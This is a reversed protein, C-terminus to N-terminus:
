TAWHDSMIDGKCADTPARPAPGALRIIVDGGFLAKNLFMSVREDFITSSATDRVNGHDAGKVLWLEKPEHAAQSLALPMSVPILGDATGAIIFVPRSASAKLLDLTRMADVHVGALRTALLRFANLFPVRSHSQYRIQDALNTIPCLLLLAKVRRERAAVQVAIFTGM